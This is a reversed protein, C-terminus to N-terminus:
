PITSLHYHGRSDIGIAKYSGPGPSCSRDQIMANDLRPKLTTKRADTGIEMNKYMYQNAAPLKEHM